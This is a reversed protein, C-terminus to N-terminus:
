PNKKTGATDEVDKWCYWFILFRVMKPFSHPEGWNRATDSHSLMKTDILLKRTAALPHTKFNESM